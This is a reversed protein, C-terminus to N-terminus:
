PNSCYILVPLAIIGEKWWALRYPKIGVIGEVILAQKKGEMLPFLWDILFPYSFCLRSHWGDGLPTVTM